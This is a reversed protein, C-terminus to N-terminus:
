ANQFLFTHVGYGTRKCKLKCKKVIGACFKKLEWNKTMTTQKLNTAVNLDQAYKLM